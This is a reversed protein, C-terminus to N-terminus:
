FHYLCLAQNITLNTAATIIREIQIKLINKNNNNNISIRILNHYYYNTPGTTQSDFKVRNKSRIKDYSLSSLPSLAVV